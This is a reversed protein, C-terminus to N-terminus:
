VTVLESLAQRIRADLKQALTMVHPPQFMTGHEGPVDEIELGNSALETWGRDPAYEYGDYARKARFLAIRGLYVRPKYADRAHDLVPMIQASLQEPSLSCLDAESIETRGSRRFLNPMDAGWKRFNHNVKLAARQAFYQLKKGPSLVPATELEHQLRERVTYRRPPRAPNNSDFLALLAVEEGAACLQQAMEFAIVGGLCYGGLFYPGAPRVTRIEELYYSAITEISIHKISHGDLGQSQIGYFPQDASLYQTLQAYFMVFGYGGHVGFFPPRSGTPQIPIVVPSPDWDQPPPTKSVKQTAVQRSTSYGLEEAIVLTREGLSDERYDRRWSEAVEPRVTKHEAFKHDGVQQSDPHVGDTMRGKEYPRLMAADFDIGVAACLAELTKQPEAVLQEFQMRHHRERPIDKLFALINEHSLLWTLEAMERGSFNHRGRYPSELILRGKDYSRIMGLPHRALHIYFPNEFWQEARRLIEIDMAYDPTKDVLVRPTISEQLRAYFDPVTCGANALQAIRANAQELDCHEIEMVARITGELMYRDYGAFGAEREALTVFQLLHLEPPAFLNRHGSLMIRTLTSGSRMPSLIFIARPNKKQNAVAWRKAPEILARMQEIKADDIPTDADSSQSNGGLDFNKELLGALLTVTPAQLMVVPSVREGTLERLRNVVRVSTLSDGGLEFFNDEADLREIGLVSKWIEAVRRQLPTSPEIFGDTPQSPKPLASRDIKGNSNLPLTELVFIPAPVMYDPLRTKIFDRVETERLRSPESAVYGVLRRNGVQDTHLIVVADRIAPHQKLTAEIESPEIRFGRIKIQSDVRGLYEISGDPLWKALDGTQYLRASPSFPDSVFREATLEQDHDYGRAVGPGGIYLAGVVGIPVPQLHSDLLYITTNSIPRGIPISTAGEPVSRVEHCVAFTTTETPGYGNVLRKPAGSRLVTAVSHPDAAEGGFVVNRMGAFTTPAEQAMLNFLSTTLFMTTIRHQAIERAFDVPSLTVDRNIVVLRAGNLLAGWIEFTAADFCCNSVQAVVDLADFAIYNTNLVLRTVGCHKIAVGKPQGTSGSTYMVYALSEGNSGPAIVPSATGGSKVDEVRIVHMSSVPFDDAFAKTTLLVPVNELMLLRRELPYDPDIPLYASGTKLIAIMGAIMEASRDMCLGILSDTRAGAERLAHALRDARENLERYTWHIAEHEVAVADPTRKAQEEFLADISSDRPFKTTAGNWEVILQECEAATLLPLKHVSQTPDVTISELLTKFHGLWRQVTRHEFLDSCYDCQVELTGGDKEAVNVYLECMATGLPGRYPFGDTVLAIDLDAATKHFEGNEYNFLVSFLPSRAPDRPLNLANLLHGFFYEQHESADIVQTKTAELHDIFRPDAKVRSRLPLVNTTNAFLNAGGELDRIGSSYAVGVVVDEQGTLRHLLTNFATFLTMFMSCRKTSGVQRLARCLDANLTIVARGGNFSRKQPRPRDLPLELTPPSESFQALWFAKDEPSSLTPQMQVFKSLQMPVPLGAGASYISWLEEFFVWYSPGNGLLHHFTLLLFHHEENLKVVAARFYPATGLDFARGAVEELYESAKSEREKAPLQSMDILPVAIIARRTIIQTEGEPAVYTRLAEHRDVVEQLARRMKSHDYQGHLRLTVAENYARSGQPDMTGLAWLGRQSETLPIVRGLKRSEEIPSSLPVTESKAAVLVPIATPLVPLGGNTTSKEFRRKLEALPGLAALASDQDVGFDIFCGVEDVGISQLHDVVKACSEPTGILAKGEVYDNFARDLLYEVDEQDVNVAGRESELRKQSNDLFSRLYNRLPGRAQERASIVNEGIFTHVLITVHGRAPDHGNQVLSERYLRIKEAVEEVTQNMLYGLVGIGLEGAKVFSDAHICTLWLPLERQKPMPFIRFSFDSGAGAKMTIQEGRWLKQITSLHELNLERRRDFNDPAFIFDNPHWGSAISIGVRGGSLNDVVSWEEAVRVPHHLPVVVSGGRLQLRKTERALAAAIISPNPSFGGVSHFHREPLWIATFGHNDAFKAAELVLRYKDETYEAPYNGFFYLSFEMTRGPLRPTPSNTVVLNQSTSEGKVPSLPRGSLAVTMPKISNSPLPVASPPKVSGEPAETGALFGGEQMEIVSLKFADIITQLDADTHATSLFCPRGEWVHIGKERLHYYLLSGWRVSEDFHLYFLSAFNEIHLPVAREVLFRNLTQVFERTRANLRHQLEPGQEKLYNLMAWSSAMTLPHRIYTGAFFTVGVEPFSNDGYNWNGGDLADMFQASGAVAGIPMGGGIVKGYTAIDARVDFWAQAGGPHCRFGTIVEDFVLATESNQTIKRLEHLFERPQLDPRRSQVPEVLVAALEHAHQRLIELSEPTGYDVVLVDRVVHEPIGPAVPLSRRVGDVVNARVLVEDCIGHFGSTTAIRSRGTVTRAVRIAALVAESGTNCFAVRDMGTLECMLAAVDSALPTSPGVEMGRTLQAAIADKIFQPAHGLLNTGFGMTLDVYENGDVDWMRAGESREVFIPYVMEKWARNFSSVARPDAFRQRHKQTQAKSKATRATYRATLGDLHKQQHEALGSSPTARDIPKFPGFRKLEGGSSGNASSKVIVPEIRTSANGTPTTGNNLQSGRLTELQKAIAALQRSMEDLASSHNAALAPTANANLLPSNDIPASTTPVPPTQTPQDPPLTEDLHSALADLTDLEELLQRFTVKVGFEKRFTQGAQTLFLSDFGLDFFTASPDADTLDQGSLNKLVSKLKALIRDKRPENVLVQERVTLSAPHAGLATDIPPSSVATITNTASKVPEVWHSKREFVYGPLPVRRRVENARAHFAAWNVDEGTLWRNALSGFSDNETLPEAPSSPVQRTFVRAFDRKHLMEIADAVDRVFVMRRHEFPRRGVQLTYAADPIDLEPHNQLHQVLADTAAELAQRTKASLLFLHSSRDPAPLLASEPAEELVVHANTGGVGFSSVAARRPVGNRQWDLLRSAVFFPTSTFDIQSNPREFHLSPPIKSYKLSLATKILGAVGAAVELHGVNTKVSGIACFNTADTTARFARTLGAIEIPDGMPTATGHAEVYSITRPDIGAMAHAMAIVEAQGSVSPATYGVKSAGDNNLAYGSIVAYIHDHDALAEDLRKLVVIGVGDGFVTGQAKADFARCHGDDSALGGQEHLHGRKQPFSISVAGALAMDCQYNLLSQCAQAVAVLSTSCATQITMSPGRLNLKYSVRTTLYDKDNGLLTQYEGTQYNATLEAAVKPDGCLNALLYTNLSLGAYVGIAGNFQESNYGADELAHWATELFVRHQPDMLEAERPTFGFFQADFLDVGPLLGRAKVYAPDALMAPDVGSSVLEHDDFTAISEVGSCINRWFEHISAAGPFRGAIGVIAVGESSM